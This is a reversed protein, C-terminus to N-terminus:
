YEVYEKSDFSDYIKCDITSANRGLLRYCLPTKFHEKVLKSSNWLIGSYKKSTIRIDPVKENCSIFIFLTLLIYIIKM